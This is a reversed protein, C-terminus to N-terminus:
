SVKRALVIWWMRLVDQRASEVKWTAGSETIEDNTTPTIPLNDVAIFYNRDGMLVKGGSNAIQQLTAELWLAGTTTTSVTPTVTQTAPDVTQGTRRSYVLSTPVAGETSIQGAFAKASQQLFDMNM